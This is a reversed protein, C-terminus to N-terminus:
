IYKSLIGQFPYDTHIHYIPCRQINKKHRKGSEPDFENSYSFFSNRDETMLKNCKEKYIANKKVSQNRKKKDLKHLEFIKANGLINNMQMAIRASISDTFEVM